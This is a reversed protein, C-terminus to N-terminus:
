GILAVLVGESLAETEIETEAAVAVEALAM